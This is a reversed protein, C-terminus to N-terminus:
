VINCHHSCDNLTNYMISFCAHFEFASYNMKKVKTQYGIIDTLCKLALRGALAPLFLLLLLVCHLNFVPTKVQM